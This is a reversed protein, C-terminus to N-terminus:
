FILALTHKDNARVYTPRGSELLMDGLLERAPVIRGPSVAAKESTDELDAAARMLTLAEERNGQAYAVWAAGGLRQVEVEVAWYADKAM